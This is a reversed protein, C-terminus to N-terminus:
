LARPVAKLLRWHLLNLDRVVDKVNPDTKMKDALGQDFEFGNDLIAEDFYDKQQLQLYGTYSEIVNKFLRDYAGLQFSRMVLSFFLAFFVSAATIITRRKNRWLNRWAMQFDKM